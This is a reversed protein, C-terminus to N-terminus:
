CAFMTFVVLRDFAAGGAFNVRVGALARAPMATVTSGTGAERVVRRGRCRGRLRDGLDLERQDRVSGDLRDTDRRCRIGGPADADAATGEAEDDDREEQEHDGRTMGCRFASSM